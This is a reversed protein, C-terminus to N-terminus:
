KQSLSVSCSHPLPLSLLLCFRFCAGPESSDACLGVCPGFGCVALDRGSRFDSVWGVTGGLDGLLLDWFDCSAFLIWNKDVLRGLHHSLDSSRQSKLATQTLHPGKALSNVRFPWDGLPCHGTRM